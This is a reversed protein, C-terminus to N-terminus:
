VLSNAAITTISAAANKMSEEEEEKGDVEGLHEKCKRLSGMKVQAKEKKKFRESNGRGGSCERYFWSEM